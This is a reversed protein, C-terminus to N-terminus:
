KKREISSRKGKLGKAAEAILGRIAESRTTERFTAVRDLAERETDSLRLMMDNKRTRNPRPKKHTDM